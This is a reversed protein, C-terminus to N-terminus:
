ASNLKSVLTRGSTLITAMGILLMIGTAPEPLITTVGFGEGDGIVDENTLFGGAGVATRFLSIGGPNGLEGGNLSHSAVQDGAKWELLSSATGSLVLTNTPLTLSFDNTTDSFLSPYLSTSGTDPNFLNVNVRFNGTFLNANTTTLIIDYAGTTDDFTMTLNVVDTPFTGFADGMMDDFSIQLLGATCTEVLTFIATVFTLHLCLIYM